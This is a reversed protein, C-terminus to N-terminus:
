RLDELFDGNLGYILRLERVFRDLNKHWPPSWYFHLLKGDNLVIHCGDSDVSCERVIGYGSNTQDNYEFHVADSDTDSQQWLLYDDDGNSAGVLRVGEEHSFAFQTQM